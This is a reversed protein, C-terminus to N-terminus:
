YHELLGAATANPDAGTAVARLWEIADADTADIFLWQACIANLDFMRRAVDAVDDRVGNRTVHRDNLRDFKWGALTAAWGAVCMVTGCVKYDDDYGNGSWFLQSHRHPEAEIASLVARAVQRPTAEKDIM